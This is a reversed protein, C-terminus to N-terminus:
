CRQRNSKDRSLSDVNLRPRCCWLRSSLFAALRPFQPPISSKILKMCITVDLGTCTRSTPGGAVLTPRGLWVAPQTNKKNKTKKRKKEKKGVGANVAMMREATQEKGWWFCRRDHTRAPAPPSPPSLSYAGLRFIRDVGPCDWSVAPQDCTTNRPTSTEFLLICGCVCVM